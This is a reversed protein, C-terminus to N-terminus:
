PWPAVQIRSRRFQREAATMFNKQSAKHIRGKIMNLNLKTHDQLLTINELPNGDVLICDAMYGPRIQGLEHERMYLKAVGATAALLSEM